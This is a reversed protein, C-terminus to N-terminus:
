VDHNGTQVSSQIGDKEKIIRRLPGIFSQHSPQLVMRKAHCAQEQASFDALKMADPLTMNRYKKLFGVAQKFCGDACVVNKPM